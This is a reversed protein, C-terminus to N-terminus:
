RPVKARLSAAIVDLLKSVDRDPDAGERGMLAQVAPMQAVKGGTIQNLYAWRAHGQESRLGIKNGSRASDDLVKELERNNLAGTPPPNRLLFRRLRNRQATVMRDSLADYQAQSLTLMGPQMQALNAPRYLTGRSDYDPADVVLALAPGLLRAIQGENLLPWLAVMVNPDAHRFFVAETNIAGASPLDGAQRLQRPIRVMNLGRLHRFLAEQANPWVWFVAAPRDGLVEAVRDKAPMDPLAVLHPGSARNATNVGDLFLPECPLNAHQLQTPLDDFQAGDIVAFVPDEIAALVPVLADAGTKTNSQM